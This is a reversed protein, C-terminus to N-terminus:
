SSNHATGHITSVSSMSTPSYLHMIILHWTVVFINFFSLLYLCFSPISKLYLHWFLIKFQNKLLFSGSHHSSHRAHIYCFMGPTHLSTCVAQLLTFWLLSSIPYPGHTSLARHMIHLRTAWPQLKLIWRSPSLFGNTPKSQAPVPSVHNHLNAM